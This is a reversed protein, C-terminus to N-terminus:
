SCPPSAVLTLLILCAIQESQDVAPEGPAEIREIKFSASANNSSSLAQCELSDFRGRFGLTNGASASFRRYRNTLGLRALQAEMRERRELSRDLNIYATYSM